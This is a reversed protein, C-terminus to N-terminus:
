NEDDGARSIKQLPPLVPAVDTGTGLTDRGAQSQRVVQLPPLQLPNSLSAPLPPPLIPTQHPPPPFDTDAQPPRFELDHNHNHAAPGGAWPSANHWNHRPLAHAAAPQPLQGLGSLPLLDSQFINGSSNALSAPANPVRSPYVTSLDFESPTYQRHTNGDGFSNSPAWAWNSHQLESYILNHQPFFHQNAQQQNVHPGTIETIELPTSSAFPLVPQQELRQQCRIATQDANHRLQLGIAKDRASSSQLERELNVVLDELEKIRDKKRQRSARQSLRNQIVRREEVPISKLASPNTFPLQKLNGHPPLPRSLSSEGKSHPRTGVVNTTTLASLKASSGGSCSPADSGAHDHATASKLALLENVKAELSAIRDKIRQQHLRQALRNQALRHQEMLENQAIAATRAQQSGFIVSAPKITSSSSSSITQCAGSGSSDHVADGATDSASDGTSISEASSHSPRLPRRSEMTPSKLDKLCFKRQAITHCIPVTVSPGYLAKERDETNCAEMLRLQAYYLKLMVDRMPGLSLKSHTSISLDKECEYAKLKLNDFLDCIEDVIAAGSDSSFSPLSKLMKRGLVERAPTPLASYKVINSSWDDELKTLSEKGCGDESLLKDFVPPTPAFTFDFGLNLDFNSPIPMTIPYFTIPKFKFDFSFPDAMPLLM